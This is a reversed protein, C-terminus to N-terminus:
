LIPQWPLTGQSIPFLPGSRDDAGLVSENLSCIASILGSSGSIIIRQAIMLFSFRFFNICACYIDREALKGVQSFLLIGDAYALTVLVTSLV